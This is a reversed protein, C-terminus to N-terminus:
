NVFGLLLGCKGIGWTDGCGPDAVSAVDIGADASGPARRDPRNSPTTLKVSIRLRCARALPNLGASGISLRACRRRLLLELMLTRRLPSNPRSNNLRPKQNSCKEKARKVEPWVNKVSSIIFNRVRRCIRVSLPNDRDISRPWHHLVRCIETSIVSTGCLVYMSPM